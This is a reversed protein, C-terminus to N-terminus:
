REEAKIIHFGNFVGITQVHYSPLAGDLLSPLLPDLSLDTKYVSWLLYNERRTSQSVLTTIAAQNDQVVRGCTSELLSGAKPCAETQLYESLRETAYRDFSESRPNTIALAAGTGVLLIGAITLGRFHKM